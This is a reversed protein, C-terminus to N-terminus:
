VYIYIYKTYIYIYISLSVGVCKLHSHMGKTGKFPSGSSKGLPELYWSIVYLSEIEVVIFSISQLGSEKLVVLYRSGRPQSDVPEAAALSSAGMRLPLYGHLCTKRWKRAPSNFADQSGACQWTSNGNSGISTRRRSQSSPMKLTPNWSMNLSSTLGVMQIVHPAKLWVNAWGAIFRCRGTTASEKCPMFYVKIWLSLRLDEEHLM